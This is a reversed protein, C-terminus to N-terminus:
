KSGTCIDIDGCSKVKSLCEPDIFIGNNQTNECFDKFTEGNSIMTKTPQAYLPCVNLLNTEAAKCYSTSEATPKPRLNHNQTNNCNAGLLTLCLLFLLIKKM